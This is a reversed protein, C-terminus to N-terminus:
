KTLWLKEKVNLFYKEPTFTQIHLMTNIFNFPNINLFRVLMYHNLSMRLKLYKNEKM